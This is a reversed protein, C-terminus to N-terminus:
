EFNNQLPRPATNSFLLSYLPTKNEGRLLFYITKKYVSFIDTENVFLYINYIAFVIFFALLNYYINTPYKSLIIIPLIKILFMMFIFQAINSITPVYICILIFNLVNEVLAFYFVYLPNGYQYIIETIHRNRSSGSNGGSRGRGSTFLVYFIFWLLIWYSFLFDPRLNGNKDLTNKEPDLESNM